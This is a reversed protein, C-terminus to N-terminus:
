RRAAADDAACVVVRRGAVGRGGPFRASKVRKRGCVVSTVCVSEERGRKLGGVAEVSASGAESPCARQLSPFSVHEMNAFRAKAIAEATVPANLSSAGFPM